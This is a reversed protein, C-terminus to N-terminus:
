RTSRAIQYAITQHIKEPTMREVLEIFGTRALERTRACPVPISLGTTLETVEWDQGPAPKSIAVLFGYPNDLPYGSVTRSKKKETGIRQLTIAYTIQKM